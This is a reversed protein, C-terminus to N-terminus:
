VEDMVVKRMSFLQRENRLHWRSGWWRELEDVSPMTALGYRWLQYPDRASCLTRSRLIDGPAVNNTANAEIQFYEEKTQGAIICTRDCPMPLCLRTAALIMDGTGCKWIRYTYWSDTICSEYSNDPMHYPQLPTDVALGCTSLVYILESQWHEDDSAYLTRQMMALRQGGPLVPDAQTINFGACSSGVNAVWSGLSKGCELAYGANTRTLNNLSGRYGGNMFNRIFTDYMITQGVATKCTDPVALGRVWDPPYVQFGPLDRAGSVHNVGQLWALISSLFGNVNDAALTPASGLPSIM